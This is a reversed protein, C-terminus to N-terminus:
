RKKLIRKLAEYLAREDLEPEEPKAAKKAAPKKAAKPKAEPEPTPEPATPAEPAAEEEGAASKHPFKEQVAKSFAPLEKRVKALAADAAEPSMATADMAEVGPIAEATKGGKGRAIAGNIFAAVAPFQAALKIFEQKNGAKSVKRGSLIGDRKNSGSVVGFIDNELARTAHTPDAIGTGNNGSLPNFIEKAAGTAKDISFTAINLKQQLELDLQKITADLQRKAAKDIETESKAKLDAIKQSLEAAGEAGGSRAARVIGAKMQGLAPGNNDYIEYGAASPHAKAIDITGKRKGSTGAELGGADKALALNDTVIIKDAPFGALGFKKLIQEILDKKIAVKAQNSRELGGRMEDYTFYKKLLAKAAKVDGKAAMELAQEQPVKKGKSAEEMYEYDMDQDQYSEDYDVEDSDDVEVRETGGQDFKALTTAHIGFILKLFTHFAQDPPKQVGNGDVGGMLYRLFTDEKKNFGESKVMSYIYTANPNESFAKGFTDFAPLKQADRLLKTCARKYAAENLYLLFQNVAGGIEKFGESMGVLTNDFDFIKVTEGGAAGEAEALYRRWGEFLFKTEQRSM